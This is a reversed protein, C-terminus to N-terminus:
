ELSSHIRYEDAFEPLKDSIGSKSWNVKDASERGLMIRMANLDASNGYKDEGPLVWYLNVKSIEKVKFYQELLKASDKHLQSKAASAIFPMDGNITITILDGDGKIQDAIILNKIRDKGDSNKAKLTEYTIQKVKGEVTKPQKEKKAKSEQATAKAEKEKDPSDLIKNMCAGVFIVAILIIGIKKINTM